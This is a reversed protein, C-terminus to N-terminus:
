VISDFSQKLVNYCDEPFSELVSDVDEGEQVRIISAILEPVFKYNSIPLVRKGLLQQWKALCDDRGHRTIYNGQEILIHFVEYTKQALQLSELSPIDAEEQFGLNQLGNRSLTTPPNEDGMTILFGKKQRKGFCDIKTKNGAFYWALDYSETNNGGGGGELYLETLQQAIRIDAEFQTAQLPSNDFALDGIGMFMLHPTKIPCTQTVCDMLRVLQTCALEKAIFGMSGTVDLGIIIARSENDGADCSERLTILKPDFAKATQKNTFIENVSRVAGTSANITTSAAYSSFLDKSYSGHGM